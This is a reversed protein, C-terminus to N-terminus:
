KSIGMFHMGCFFRVIVLGESIVVAWSSYCLCFMVMSHKWSTTLWKIYTSLIYFQDSSGPCVTYHTFFIFLQLLILWVYRINKTKAYM